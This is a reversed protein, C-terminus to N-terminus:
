VRITSTAVYKTLIQIWIQGWFKNFLFRISSAFLWVQLKKACEEFSPFSALNKSKYCIKHRNDSIISAFKPHITHLLQHLLKEIQM